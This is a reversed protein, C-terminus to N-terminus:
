KKQRGAFASVIGAFAFIAAIVVAATPWDMTDERKRKKEKGDSM